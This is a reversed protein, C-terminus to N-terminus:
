SIFNWVTRFIQLVKIFELLFDFNPVRSSAFTFDTFLVIIM